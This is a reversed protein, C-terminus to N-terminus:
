FCFGLETGFRFGEARILAWAMCGSGHMLVLGLARFGLGLIRSVVLGLGAARFALRRMGCGPVGVLGLVWVRFGSGM